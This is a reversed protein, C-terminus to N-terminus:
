YYSGNIWKKMKPVTKQNWKVDSRLKLFVNFLRNVLDIPKEYLYAKELVMGEIDEATEVPGTEPVKLGSFSLSEGKLTFKWEQNESKYALNMEIVVAGKRLSLIGEELGADDGKITIMERADNIDNEIVIRNGLYISSITEDVTKFFPQDTEITFWLWTLFENGIFKYRNYAIAIDLMTPKNSRSDPPPSDPSPM